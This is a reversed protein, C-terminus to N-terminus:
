CILHHFIVRIACVQYADITQLRLPCRGRIQYTNPCEEFDSLENEKLLENTNQDM